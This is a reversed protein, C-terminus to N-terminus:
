SSYRYESLRPRFSAVALIGAGIVLVLGAALTAPSFALGADAAGSALPVTAPFGPTLLGALFARAHGADHANLSALVIVLGLTLALAALLRASLVRRFGQWLVYTTAAAVLLLALLPALLLSWIDGAGVWRSALDAQVAALEQNRLMLLSAQIQGLTQGAERFGAQGLATGGAGFGTRAEAFSTSAQQVASDYGIVQGETFQILSASAGGAVNDGAASVLDQSAASFDEQYEPGPGTLLVAGRSFSARVAKQALTLKAYAADLSRLEAAGRSTALAIERHAQYTVLLSLLGAALITLAAGARLWRLWRVPHARAYVARALRELRAAAAAGVAAV